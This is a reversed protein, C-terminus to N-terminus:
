ITLAGLLAGVAGVALILWGVTSLNLGLASGWLWVLGNPIYFIAVLIALVAFVPGGATPSVTPTPGNSPTAPGSAHAVLGILAAIIAGALTALTGLAISFLALVFGRAAYRSTASASGGQRRRAGIGAAGGVLLLPTLLGLASPGISAATEYASAGYPSTSQSHISSVLFLLLSGVWYPVAICAARLASEGNNSSNPFMRELRGGARYAAAVIAGTILLSGVGSVSSGFFSLDANFPVLHATFFVFSVIMLFVGVVTGPDTGQGSSPAFGGGPFMPLAQAAGAAIALLALVSLLVSLGLAMAFVAVGRGLIQRTVASNQLWGFPGASVETTMTM